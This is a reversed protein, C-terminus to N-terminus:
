YVEPLAAASKPVHLDWSMGAADLADTESCTSFSIVFQFYSGLDQLSCM